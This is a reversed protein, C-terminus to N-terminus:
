TYYSGIYEGTLMRHIIDIPSYIIGIDVKEYEKTLYGIKKRTDFADGARWINWSNSKKYIIRNGDYEDEHGFTDRFLPPTFDKELAQNGVKNWLGMKLGFKIVVHSYFDVGSSLITEINVSENAAGRYCFVRIVESNLMCPDLLLYQFYGVESENLKVQFIDGKKIKTRKTM